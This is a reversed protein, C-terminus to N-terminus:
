GEVEGKFGWYHQNIVQINSTISKCQYKDCLPCGCQTSICILKSCTVTDQLCM